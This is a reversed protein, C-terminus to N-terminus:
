IYLVSLNLLNLFYNALLYSLLLAAGIVLPWSMGEKKFILKAFLSYVLSLGLFMMLFIIVRPWSILLSALFLLFIEEINIFSDRFKKFIKFILFVLFAIFISILNALFFHFFCYSIFYSWPQYPPLFLVSFSNNHWIYYQIAMLGLDYVFSVIILFWALGKFSIKKFIALHSNSHSFYHLIALIIILLSFIWPAWILFQGIFFRLMYYYILAM